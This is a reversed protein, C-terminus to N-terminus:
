DSLCHWTMRSSICTAPSSHGTPPLRTSSPPFAVFSFRNPLSRTPLSAAQHGFAAVTADFCFFTKSGIWSSTISNRGPCLAAGLLHMLRPGFLCCESCVFM